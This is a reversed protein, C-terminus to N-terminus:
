SGTVVVTKSHSGTFAKTGAFVLEYSQKGKTPTVTFTVSGKSNTAHTALVKYSKAGPARVELKVNERALGKKGQDLVGTITDKAKTKETTKAAHISLTTHKAAAAGTTTAALAPTGAIAVLGATAVLVKLTKSSSMHHGETRDPAADIRCV